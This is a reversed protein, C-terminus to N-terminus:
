RNANLSELWSQIAILQEETAGCLEAEIKHQREIDSPVLRDGAPKLVLSSLRTPPLMLVPNPQPVVLRTTPTGCGLLSLLCCAGLM